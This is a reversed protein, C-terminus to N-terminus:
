ASAALYKYVCLTSGIKFKSAGQCAVKVRTIASTSRYGFGIARTDPATNLVAVTIPQHAHILGTKRFTTASYNPVFVQLGSAYSDASAAGHIACQVRTDGNSPAGVIQANAASFRHWDYNAAGDNNFTLDFLDADAANDTRAQFYILLVDGNTWDGTGANAADATTDISAKDAGTVAFRYILSSSGISGGGGGGTGGGYIPM